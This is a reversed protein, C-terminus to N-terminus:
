DSTPTAEAPLLNVALEGFRVKRGLEFDFRLEARQPLMGAGSPALTSPEPTTRVRRLRHLTVHGAGRLQSLTAAPVTGAGAEDAYACRVSETADDTTFDVYVVDGPAGVDWTLDQPRLVGLTDVQHLPSGNLTVHDLQRPAVGHITMAAIRSSGSIEVRYDLGSPLSASRDRTTYVVGSNFNSVGPFARPALTVVSQNGPFLQVTGAELLEFDGDSTELVSGTDGSQTHPDSAQGATSVGQRCQGIEPIARVLGAVELLRAPEGNVEAFHALAQASAGANESTIAGLAATDGEASNDVGEVSGLAGVNELAGASTADLVAAGEAAGASDLGETPAALATREVDIYAVTVHSVPDTAAVAEATEPPADWGELSGGSCAPAAVVLLAFACRLPRSFLRMGGLM